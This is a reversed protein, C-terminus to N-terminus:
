GDGRLKILGAGWMIRVALWRFLWIVATPPPRRPFPRADILPCLFCGLLGTELLQIEWGYGYWVQGVHVFSSYLVWLALLILANAYGALVLASLAVGLWALTALLADSPAFWFLSPLRGFVAARSGM